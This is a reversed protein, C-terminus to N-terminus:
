TGPAIPFSQSLKAGPTVPFCPPLELGSPAPFFLLIQCLPPKARLALPYFQSHIPVSAECNFLTNFGRVCALGVVSQFNEQAGRPNTGASGHIPGVDQVLRAVDARSTHARVRARVCCVVCLCVCLSVCLCVCVCVRVCM